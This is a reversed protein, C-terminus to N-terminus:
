SLVAGEPRREKTLTSLGIFIGAALPFCAAIRLADPGRVIRDKLLQAREAPLLAGAIGAVLIILGILRVTKPTRAAAAGIFLLAGIAVRVVAAVWVGGPTFSYMALQMVGEPWLVGTLGLLVMLTAILLLIVKKM